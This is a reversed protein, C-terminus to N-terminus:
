GEARRSKRVANLLYFTISLFLFRWQVSEVWNRPVNLKYKMCINKWTEVKVIVSVKVKFKLKKKEYLCNQAINVELNIVSWWMTSKFM